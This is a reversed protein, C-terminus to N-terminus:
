VSFKLKVPGDDAPVVFRGPVNTTLLLLLVIPMRM